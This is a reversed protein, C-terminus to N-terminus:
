GGEPGDGEWLETEPHFAAWAGWFAVYAEAVPELRTGNEAGGSGEGHINWVGGTQNDLIAGDRVSFTLLMGDRVPRYAAAAQLETDWFVVVPEGGVEAEVVGVDGLGELAGFPFAIGGELPDPIGLVREKAPRRPDRPPMADGFLFANHSLSEYDGYPYIRWDRGLNESASVVETNPHIKKWGEWTMEIAPYHDLSQGTAPGCRAQGLMQPWLSENTRRNYMILNNQWLLGSVGFENGDVSARDFVISSGTLPCYTVALQEGGRNLNVIEHWWLVNHPIALPKGDLILGVVRNHSLVYDNDPGPSASVFLPDTLAPIGDRGV